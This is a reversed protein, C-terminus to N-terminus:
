RGSRLLRESTYLSSYDVSTSRTARAPLDAFGSSDVSIEGMQEIDLYGDSDTEIIGIPKLGVLDTADGIASETGIPKLSITDGDMAEVGIPKLDVYGDAGTEEMGIPKLGIFGNDDIEIIGIPKLGVLDTAVERFSSSVDALEVTWEFDYSDAAESGIPKLEVSGDAATAWYGIPKLSTFGDSDTEVMGIPELDIYTGTLDATAMAATLEAPDYKSYCAADAASTSLAATAVTAFAAAAILTQANM